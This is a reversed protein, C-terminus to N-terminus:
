RIILLRDSESNLWLRYDAGNEFVKVTSQWLMTAIMLTLGKIM